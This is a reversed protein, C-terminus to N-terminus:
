RESERERERQRERGRARETERERESEREREKERSKLKYGYRQSRFEFRSVASLGQSNKQMRNNQSYAPYGVARKMIQSLTGVSPM